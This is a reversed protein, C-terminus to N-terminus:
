IDVSVILARRPSLIPRVESVSTLNVVSPSAEERFGNPSPIPRRLALADVRVMRQLPTIPHRATILVVNRLVPDSVHTPSTPSKPCRPFSPRPSRSIHRFSRPELSPVDAYPVLSGVGPRSNDWIPAFPLTVFTDPDSCADFRWPVLGILVSSTNVRSPLCAGRRPPLLFLTTSVPPSGALDSLSWPLGSTWDLAGCIRYSSGGTRQLAGGTM